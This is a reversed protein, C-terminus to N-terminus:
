DSTAGRAIFPRHLFLLFSKGVVLLCCRDPPPPCELPM